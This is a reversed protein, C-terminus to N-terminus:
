LGSFCGSLDFGLVMVSFSGCKFPTILDSSSAKCVLRPILAPGTAELEFELRRSGGLVPICVSQWFWMPTQGRRLSASSLKFETCILKLILPRFLQTDKDSVTVSPFNHDFLVYLTHFIGLARTACM